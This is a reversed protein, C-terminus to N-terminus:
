INKFNKIRTAFKQVYFDIHTRRKRENGDMTIIEDLYDNMSQILIRKGSQNLYYANNEIDFFEPFIVEQQCLYIVTFDAWVRFLEIFDYSLVPKNYEDKHYLGIFPDLGAKLLSGEVANYLMGYAYNLLCNFMDNAPHQSRKEFQYTEPLYKSICEFYWKSSTGEWGRLTHAVEDLTEAELEKTKGMYKEIRKIYKQIDDENYKDMAIFFLLLTSQNIFKTILIEKVWDLAKSSKVFELQNKRISSISGFRNNWIRGVPKGTREIFLIEINNELAVFVAETTISASKNIYISSVETVPVDINGDKHRVQFLGEKIGLNVGYKDLYLEM